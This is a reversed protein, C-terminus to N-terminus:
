ICEYCVSQFHFDALIVPCRQKRSLGDSFVYYAGNSFDPCKRYTDWDNGHVNYESSQMSM